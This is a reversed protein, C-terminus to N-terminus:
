VFNYSVSKDTNENGFTGDTGWSNLFSLVVVVSVITKGARLAFVKLTIVDYLM